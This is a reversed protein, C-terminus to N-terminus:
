YILLNAKALITSVYLWALKNRHFTMLFLFAYKRGAEGSDSAIFSNRAYLAGQPAGM